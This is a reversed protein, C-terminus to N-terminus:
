AAAEPRGHWPVGKFKLVVAHAYILAIVRLTAGYHRLLGRRDMPRRQLRLTADFVKEGRERNEVHVSVTPGPETARLTYRQDMGMFPSVHLRKDMDAALVRHGDERPLM